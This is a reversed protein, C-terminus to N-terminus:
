CPWDRGWKRPLSNELPAVGGERLRRTKQHVQSFIGLGYVMWVPEAYRTRSAAPSLRVAKIPAHSSGPSSRPPRDRASASNVM